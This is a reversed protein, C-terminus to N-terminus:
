FKGSRHSSGQSNITTGGSKNKAKERKRRVINRFLFIDEKNTLNIGEDGIYLNATRQIKATKMRSWFIIVTVLSTLFPVIALIVAAVKRKEKPDSKIDIAVGRRASELFEECSDIFTSFSKYYNGKSLDSLFRNELKEKGYDTFAINGYGHAMIDFDREAMSILLMIGSKDEGYGLNYKDYIGQAYDEIRLEGMDKVTIVLIDCENLLSAAEAKKNLEDQEEPTLLGASDTVYDLEGSGAYVYFPSLLSLTFSLILLVVVLRNRM